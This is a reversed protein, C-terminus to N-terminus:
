HHVTLPSGSAAGCRCLNRGNNGTRARENDTGLAKLRVRRISRVMSVVSLVRSECSVGARERERGARRASERENAADANLRTGLGGAGEM